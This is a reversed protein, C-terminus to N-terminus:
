PLYSLECDVDVGDDIDDGADLNGAINHEAIKILRDLWKIRSKRTKEDSRYIDHERLWDELYTENNIARQIYRVLSNEEIAPDHRGGEVSERMKGRAQGLANCIADSENSKILKRAGQLLKLHNENMVFDPVTRPFKNKSM